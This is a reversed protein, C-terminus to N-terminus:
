MKRIAKRPCAKLCDFCSMCLDSSTYPVEYAADQRLIGKPCVQAAQCAGEPCADPQCRAPDVIAKPKPMAKDRLLGRKPLGWDM